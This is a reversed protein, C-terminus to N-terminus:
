ARGTLLRVIFVEGGGVPDAFAPMGSPLTVDGGGSPVEIREVGVFGGPHGAIVRGTRSVLALQEGSSAIRELHRDHL